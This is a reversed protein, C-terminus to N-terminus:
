GRGSGEEWREWGSGEERGTGTRAQRFWDGEPQPHPGLPRLRNPRGQARAPPRGLVKSPPNLHRSTLRRALLRSMARGFPALRVAQLGHVSRTGAFAAIPPPAPPSSYCEASLM